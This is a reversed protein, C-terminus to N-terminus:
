PGRSFAGTPIKSLPYDCSRIRLTIQRTSAIVGLSRYGAALSWVVDLTRGTSLTRSATGLSQRGSNSVDYGSVRRGRGRSGSRTM